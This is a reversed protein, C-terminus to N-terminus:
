GVGARREIEENFKKSEKLGMGSSQRQLKIAQIKKARRVVEAIERPVHIYPDLQINAQKLLLDLKAEVRSLEVIGGQLGNLRAGILAMVRWRPLPREYVISKPGAAAARLHSRSKSSPEAAAGSKKM